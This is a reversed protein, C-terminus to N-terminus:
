PLGRWLNPRTTRARYLSAGASPTEVDDTFIRQRGSSQTELPMPQRGNGAKPYHPTILKVLRPWPVVQDVEALFRERRTLKKKSDFALSAFTTQKM